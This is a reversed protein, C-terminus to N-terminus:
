FNSFNAIKNKLKDCDILIKTITPKIQKKLNFLDFKQLNKIQNPRNKLTIIM